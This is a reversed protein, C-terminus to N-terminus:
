RTYEKVFKANADIAEAFPILAKAPPDESSIAIRKTRQGVATASPIPLGVQIPTGAVIRELTALGNAPPTPPVKNPIVVVPYDSMDDALQSLGELDLLNLTTPAVVVDAVSLAGHTHEAAGPHTDVVVWETDWEDAWKMLADAVVDGSPAETALLPHGPVLRPKRFGKLPRPTRGNEVADLIPIRLKDQPRYGWKATVGGRDHELDVLVADLRYALEYSLTSKGVGGKRSHSVLIKAM